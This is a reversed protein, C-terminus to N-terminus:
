SIGGICFLLKEMLEWPSSKSMGKLSKDILIAQQLVSGLRQNDFRGLVSNIASQRQYWVRHENFVRDKPTGFAIQTSISCIRRLEWMIAGYVGMPEVGEQRLGRLMNIVKAGNGYLAHEILSFVDYRSSNLVNEQIDILTIQEKNVLLCLKEIEQQTALLNGETRLAILEAADKEIIKGKLKLRRSIWDPLKANNISHVQIVAGIKDIAKCWRSELMRKDLNTMNIMLVNDKSPNGTYAILAESGPKGPTHHAMRLEILTTSSFLGMNANEQHLLNWDFGKEVNLIRREAGAKLAYKRILDSAEMAQLPEDGGIVYVPLLGNRQLNPSLQENAIRM